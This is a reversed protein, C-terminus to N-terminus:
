PKFGARVLDATTIRREHHTKVLEVPPLQRYARRFDDCWQCLGNRQIPSFEQARLCSRCWEDRHARNAAFTRTTPRAAEIAWVVMVDRVTAASAEVREAPQRALPTWTEDRLDACLATWTTALHLRHGLPLGATAKVPADLLDWLDVVIRHLASDVDRLAQRCVDRHGSRTAEMAAELNTLDSAPGEGGGPYGGQWLWLSEVAVEWRVRGSPTRAYCARLLAEANLLHRKVSM